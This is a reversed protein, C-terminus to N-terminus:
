FVANHVEIIVYRVEFQIQGFNGHWHVPDVTGTKVVLLQQPSVNFCGLVFYHLAKVDTIQCNSRHLCNLSCNSFSFGINHIYVPCM